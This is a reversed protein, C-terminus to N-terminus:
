GIAHAVRLSHQLWRAKGRSKRLSQTEPRRKCRCTSCKYRDKPLGQKRESLVCIAPRERERWTSSAPQSKLECRISSTEMVSWACEALGTNFAFGRARELDSRAHSTAATRATKKTGLVNASNIRYSTLRPGKPNM